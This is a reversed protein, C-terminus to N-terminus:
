TLYSILPQTDELHPSHTTRAVGALGDPNRHMVGKCDHQGLSMFLISYLVFFSFTFSQIVEMQKNKLPFLNHSEVQM